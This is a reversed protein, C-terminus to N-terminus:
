TIVMFGQVTGDERKGFIMRGIKRAGHHVWVDWTWAGVSRKTTFGFSHAFALLSSEDSLDSGDFGGICEGIWNPNTSKSIHRRQTKATDIVRQSINM